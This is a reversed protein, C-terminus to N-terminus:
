FVHSACHVCGQLEGGAREPKRAEGGGPALVSRLSGLSLRLAFNSHDRKQKRLMM